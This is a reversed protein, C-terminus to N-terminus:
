SFRNRAGILWRGSRRTAAHSDRLPGHIPTTLRQVFVLRLVVGNERPDGPEHLVAGDTVSDFMAQVQGGLLDTLAPALGRYPVHVLSLGTMMKFLEGALHSGTGTGYSAMSIKGSNVNAYLVGIETPLRLLNANLFAFAASVTLLM